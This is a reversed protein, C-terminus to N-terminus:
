GKRTAPDAFLEGECVEVSAGFSNVDTGNNFFAFLEFYERPHHPRVQAHPASPCGLTLGLWVAGTTNVRDVVEENRFQEDDTGGEENIM